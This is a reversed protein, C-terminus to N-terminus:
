HRLTEGITSSFRGINGPFLTSCYEVREKGGWPLKRPAGVIDRLFLVIYFMIIYVYVSTQIIVMAAAAIVAKTGIRLDVRKM